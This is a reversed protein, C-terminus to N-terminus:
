SFQKTFFDIEQQLHHNRSFFSHAQKQHLLYKEDDEMLEVIANAFEKPNDRVICGNESKNILGDVGRTNTIVPLNYSLSELVKIKIGTGSLMPCISIRTNRYFEELSEVMGYKTVNPYEGKIVECVKGIIHVKYQKIEPLVNELFWQIGRVNHPNNSGVFIIDYLHKKLPQLCQQPFAVPVHVVKRNSFQEFVYKEEPSFTWIEDFLNIIDMESQFYKGIKRKKMRNQATIFDHTDLILHAKYQINKILTGWSAYSIIIKDYKKAHIIKTFKRNLMPNSIDVSVGRILKPLANPLKYFLISKWWPKKIKRNTLILNINPYIKHFKEINTDTWTGWDKLSAFDVEYNKAQNLYHLVQQCRTINGAKEATPCDPMFYLLKKKM